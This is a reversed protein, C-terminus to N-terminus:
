EQIEDVRASGDAGDSRETMEDFEGQVPSESATMDNGANAEADSSVEDAMSTTASVSSSPVSFADGSDSAAGGEANEDSGDAYSLSTIVTNPYSVYLNLTEKDEWVYKSETATAPFLALAFVFLLGVVVRSNINRRLM